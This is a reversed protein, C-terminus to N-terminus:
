DSQEPFLQVDAGAPDNSQHQPEDNEEKEKPTLKKEAQEIAALGDKAWQPLRDVEM